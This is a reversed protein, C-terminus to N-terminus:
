RRRQSHRERPPSLLVAVSPAIMVRALTRTQKTAM